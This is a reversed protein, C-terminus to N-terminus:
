SRPIVKLMERPTKFKLGLHLRKENYHALYKEIGSSSLGWGMVLTEEQITRNFRELHGNENPSRPHIHRHFAGLRRVADSFFLGFEPGNDTQIVRSPFGKMVLRLFAVSRRCNAKKSMMAFGYRSYVDLATYVYRGSGRKLHVTDFQVLDGPKQVDPLPPYRRAKKWPSRKKLLRYRGLVRKVSSLSVEIGERKLYEHTVESCRKHEMRAAIIAAVTAKSLERPHRKPRSSRTEIRAGVVIGAKRSWKVIASQSYGFHRAVERTSVGGRLMRVAEARVRPLNDSTTYAMRM